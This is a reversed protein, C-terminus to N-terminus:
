IPNEIKPSIGAEEWNIFRHLKYNELRNHYYYLLKIDNTGLMEEHIVLPKAPHYVGLNKIGDNVLEEIPLKIEESLKIKGAEEWGILGNRLQDVVLHFVEMRVNFEDPPLNVIDFISQDRYQKILIRFAAFAVLHSSLVVNNIYYSELIKDGLMKTYVTERQLDPTIQGAWTFYDKLDLTSGKTDLSNGDTDVLNGLVDMPQGLSLTIESKESFISWIFKMIKRYSKYQDKQKIYKEKGQSQLYNNILFKAELVFHYDLVLPFIFIKKDSGEEIFIRQSEIVSGLLGLKLREEISGNRSRTGGPFFLNNVGKQLSYCAMSKLCELYIPNKKRRDVKYAGLRNIFYAVLEMDYLNLGAGYAFAPIGVVADMAYGILISDLNSFHTPVVVIVGKKFLSRIKDVHGVVKIRDQLQLRNGWIRRHNRGAATNLLRKFFSTLFRRTFKFTKPNFSGTIEESYRNIIRKLLEDEQAEKDEVDQIKSYTKELDSWYQKENPPDVKWPSRKSRIKEMYITKALIASINDKHLRIMRKYSFANLEAVFSARDKSIQYIPWKDVEPIIHPHVAKM